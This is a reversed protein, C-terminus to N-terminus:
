DMKYEQLETTSEFNDGTTEVKALIAGFTWTVTKSGGNEYVLKSCMFKGAKVEIEEFIVEPKELGDPVESPALNIIQESTFTEKMDADYMTMRYTSVDNETKIVIIKMFTAPQEQWDDGMKIKMTTKTLSFNGVKRYFAMADEDADPDEDGSAEVDEWEVDVNNNQYNFTCVLKGDAKNAMVITIKGLKKTDHKVAEYEVSAVVEDKAATELIAKVAESDADPPTNSERYIAKLQKKVSATTTAAMVRRGDMKSTDITIQEESYGRWVTDSAGTRFNFRYALIGDDPIKMDITIVGKGNPLPAYSTAEIGIERDYDELYDELFKAVNKDNASPVTGTKSYM